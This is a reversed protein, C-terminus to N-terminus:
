SEQNKQTQRKKLYTQVFFYLTSSLLLTIEPNHFFTCQLVNPIAEGEQTPSAIVLCDLFTLSSGM